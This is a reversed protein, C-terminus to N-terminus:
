NFLITFNLANSIFVRCRMISMAYDDDDIDINVNSLRRKLTRTERKRRKRKERKKRKVKKEKERDKNEASWQWKRASTWADEEAREAEIEDVYPLLYHVDEEPTMWQERPLYIKKTSCLLARSIRFQREDQLKQPLRKVAEQNIPYNPCLVDDRMLGYKPFRCAYYCATKWKLKFGTPNGKFGRAFTYPIRTGSM